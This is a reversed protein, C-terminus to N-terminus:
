QGESRAPAKTSAGCAARRMLLARGGQAGSTKRTRALGSPNRNPTWVAVRTTGPQLIPSQQPAVRADSGTGLRIPGHGM